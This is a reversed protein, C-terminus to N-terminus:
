VTLTREIWGEGSDLPSGGEGLSEKEGSWRSFDCSLGETKPNVRIRREQPIRRMRRAPISRPNRRLRRLHSPLKAGVKRLLTKLKAFVQEIPNLDSYKPLFV